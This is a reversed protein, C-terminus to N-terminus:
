RPHVPGVITMPRPLAGGRVAAAGRLVTSLRRGKMALVAGDAVTVADARLDPLRRKVQLDPGVVQAGHEYSWLVLEGASRWGAVILDEGPVPRVGGTVLDLLTVTDHPVTRTTIAAWRGDPSWAIDSAFPVGAYTRLPRLTPLALVQLGAAVPVFLREPTIASVIGVSGDLARDHGRSVLHVTNAGEPAGALSGLVVAIRRGEPDLCAVDWVTGRPIRRRWRLRGDLTRVEVKASADPADALVRGGPCITTLDSMTWPLLRQIRADADVLLVDEGESLLLAPPGARPDERLEPRPPAAYSGSSKADPALGDQRPAGTGGGCAALLLGCLAVFRGRARM